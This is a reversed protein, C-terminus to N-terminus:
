ARPPARDSPLGVISHALYFDTQGGSVPSPAFIPPTTLALIQVQLHSLSECITCTHLGAFGNTEAQEHQSDDGLMQQTVAVQQIESGVLHTFFHFNLNLLALLLLTVFLTSPNYRTVRNM